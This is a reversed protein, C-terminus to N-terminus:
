AADGVPGGSVDQGRVMALAEQAEAQDLCLERSGEQRRRTALLELESRALDPQGREAPAPAMTGLLEMDDGIVHGGPIGMHQAIDRLLPVCEGLLVSSCRRPSKM